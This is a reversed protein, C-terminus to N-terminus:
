GFWGLRCRMMMVVMVEFGRLTKRKRVHKIPSILSEGMGLNTKLELGNWALM